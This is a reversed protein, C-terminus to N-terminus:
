ESAGQRAAQLGPAPEGLAGRVSLTKAKAAAEPSEQWPTVSWDMAREFTVSGTATSTAVGKGLVSREITVKGGGVRGAMQWSDFKALPTGVAEPAALGGNRVMATFEGTVGQSALGRLTLGLSSEATGSGWREHFIAGAEEISVGSLGLTLVATGSSMQIDGSGALAGGLMQGGLRVIKATGGNLVFGADFHRVDLLGATMADATLDM